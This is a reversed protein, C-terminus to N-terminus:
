YAIGHLNLAESAVAVHRKVFNTNYKVRHLQFSRLHASVDHFLQRGHTV